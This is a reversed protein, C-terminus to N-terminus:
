YINSGMCQQSRLRIYSSMYCIFYWRGKKSTCYENISDRLISVPDNDSLDVVICLKKVDLSM